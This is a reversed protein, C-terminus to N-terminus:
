SRNIKKIAKNGDQSKANLDSLLNQNFPKKKSDKPKQNVTSIVKTNKDDQKNVTALREQETKFYNKSEEDSQVENAMYEEMKKNNQKKSPVDAGNKPAQTSLYAFLGSENAITRLDDAMKKQKMKNLLQLVVEFNAENKIQTAEYIAAYKNGSVTLNRVLEIRKVDNVDDIADIEALTLVRDTFIKHYPNNSMSNKINRFNVNKERELFTRVSQHTVEAALDDADDFASHKYVKASQKIIPYRMSSNPATEGLGLRYGVLDGDMVGLLWFRRQSNDEFFTIWVSRNVLARICGETDQSYLVGDDSYSFWSLRAYPTICVKTEYLLRMNTVDYTKLALNQCGFVPFGQIVVLSLYNEFSTMSVVPSDVTFNYLESGGHSYVRVLNNSNLAFLYQNSISVSHLTDGKNFEVSWENDYKISHYYLVAPKTNIEDEYEDDKVATGKTALVYGALDMDALEFDQQNQIIQKKHLNNDKYEIILTNADEFKHISIQGYNNLSVIRVAEKHSGYAGSVISSQIKVGVIEDSIFKFPRIRQKVNPKDKQALKTEFLMLNKEVPEQDLPEEQMKQNSHGNQRPESRAAIEEAYKEIDDFDINASPEQNVEEDEELILKKQKIKTEQPATDIRQELLFDLPEDKPTRASEEDSKNSKNDEIEMEKEKQETKPKEVKKVKSSKKTNTSPKSASLLSQITPQPLQITTKVNEAQEIEREIRISNYIDLQGGQNHIFLKSEVECIGLCPNEYDFKLSVRGENADYITIHDVSQIAFEKNNIWSLLKSENPIDMNEIRSVSIESGLSVKYIHNLSSAVILINGSVCFGNLEGSENFFQKLDIVASKFEGSEDLSLKILDYNNDACYFIDNNNDSVIFRFNAGIPIITHSLNRKDLVLVGEHILFAVFNQSQGFAHAPKDSIVRKEISELGDLKFSEILISDDTDILYAIDEKTFVKKFSNQTDQIDRWDNLALDFTKITMDPGCVVLMQGDNSSAYASLGKTNLKISNLQEM